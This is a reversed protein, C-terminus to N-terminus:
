MTLLKTMDEIRRNFRLTSLSILQGIEDQTRVMIRPYNRSYRRSWRVANQLDNDDGLGFVGEDNIYKNSMFKTSKFVCGEDGGKIRRAEM